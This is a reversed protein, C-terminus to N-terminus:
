RVREQDNRLKLCIVKFGGMEKGDETWLREVKGRKEASLWRTRTVEKGGRM